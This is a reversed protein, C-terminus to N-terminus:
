GDSLRSFRTRKVRNAMRTHHTDCPTAHRPKTSSSTSAPSSAYTANPEADWGRNTADDALTAADDRQRTLVPLDVHGRPLQPLARLHQRLPLTGPRTRPPLPRRRPRDQRHPSRWDQADPAPQQSPPAPLTGIRSKALDLAREYEARVTTDFLRGYRLSMEASVHGLMAM